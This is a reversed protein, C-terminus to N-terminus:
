CSKNGYMQVKLCKLDMFLLAIVKSKFTAVEKVRIGMHMNVTTATRTAEQPWPSRWIVQLDSEVENKYEIAEIVWTGTSLRMVINVFPQSLFKLAGGVENSM